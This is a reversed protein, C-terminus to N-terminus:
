KEFLVTAEYSNDHDSVAITSIMYMKASAYANILKHVDVLTDAEFHKITTKNELSINTM